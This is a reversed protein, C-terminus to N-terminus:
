ELFNIIKSRDTPVKIKDHQKIFNYLTKFDQNVNLMLTALQDLVCHDDEKLEDIPIMKYGDWGDWPQMPEKLLSNADLILNCKVYDLGWWQFIGFLQPDLKGKKCMMWADPALIFNNNSLDFSNFTINLQDQQFHDLQPDVMNWKNIQEDFYELVWHDVYKGKEFYTAFGCRARASIGAQRCLAAAVVAYDRCIGIMKKENPLKQSVHKIGHKKLFTLKDELRRIWPEKKREDSLIVGYREAWHQHLFMNQVFKVITKIDKPISAVMDSNTIVETMIGHERYYELINM